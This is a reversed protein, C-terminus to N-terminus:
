KSPPASIYTGYKIPVIKRSIVVGEENKIEEITTGTVFTVAESVNDGQQTTVQVVCGLGVIEMAKTSKMWGESKSSAKCILKFTDGNGWIVLDAIKDKAQSATTNDLTKEM